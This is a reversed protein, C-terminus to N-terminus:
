KKTQTFRNNGVNEKIRYLVETKGLLAMLDFIGPSETKGLLALRLPQALAVLKIDHKKAIAKLAVAISQPSFEKDAELEQIIEPMLALAQQTLWTEQDAVSVVHERQALLQLEEVMIRLTKTREKYLNILSYIGTKDWLVSLKNFIEADVDREILTYLSEASTNRIYSGNMWDLKNQDFIAGKKGVQELTFFQVLEERTFLEQDGHSWGLRVLYNCLADALYGNRKYDLVSTAVDRKSLKAGTPGLILPLHAFHPIKFGCAEYLIIQKPTNSIHDEGRIVHTINMAADDVVVVFNYIPSGDSRAIIFDDFQDIAFSVPGRILDNFSIVPQELPIKIRVVSPQKVDQESVKRTRCRGDYKFYDDSSGAQNCACFCRYAKGQALLSEIVKTHEALRSSQIVIPEDPEIAAWALSQLISETFEPLSRVLDTDEIRVLFSGKNHRAFLWNFLAARLSGIHLHGTPSPAFRVRVSSDM